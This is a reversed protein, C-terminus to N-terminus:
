SLAASPGSPYSLLNSSSPSEQLVEDIEKVGKGLHHVPLETTVRSFDKKKRSNAKRRPKSCMMPATNFFDQIAISSSRVFIRITNTKQVKKEMFNNFIIQEESPISHFRSVIGASLVNLAKQVIPSPSSVLKEEAIQENNMTWNAAKVTDLVIQKGRVCHLKRGVHSPSSDLQTPHSKNM